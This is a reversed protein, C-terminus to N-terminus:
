KLIAGMIGFVGYTDVNDIALKVMVSRFLFVMKIINVDFTFICRIM